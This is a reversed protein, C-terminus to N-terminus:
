MEELKNLILSVYQRTKIGAKNLIIKSAINSDSESYKDSYYVVEKIGSQVILKACENCPFLTTYLISNLLDSRNGNLIANAEAHVVYFYKNNIGEGDRNWNMDDDHCNNPMGNYGCSVIRKNSNVICCGVKTHSDKSRKSSWLAVGMFYDDWNIVKNQKM